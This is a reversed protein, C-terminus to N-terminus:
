KAERQLCCLLDDLAKRATLGLIDTVCAIAVSEGRGPNPQLTDWDSMLVVVIMKLVDNTEYNFAKLIKMASSDITRKRKSRM